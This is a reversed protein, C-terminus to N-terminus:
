AKASINALRQLMAAAQARTAAGKPDIIIRGDANKGVGSIVGLNSLIQIADMAYDSIDAEDAFIIWRTTVPQNIKLYKMYRTFIVAMDQRKIPDNPAFRGSGVGAVIGNHYAWIVADSYMQGVPADTFPNDLGSIDPEGEILYLITVMMGRTLTADPSFLMPDASTGSMLGNHYVYIVADIFWDAGKVDEFPNVPLTPTIPAPADEITFEARAFAGDTFRAELTHKGVPLTDLYGSFVTIETSGNRASYHSDRKILSGDIMADRFFGFAKQVVFILPEGSGKIYVSKGGHFGGRPSASATYDDDASGGNQNVSDPAGVSLDFGGSTVGDITLTLPHSGEPTVATTYITVITNDNTTTDAGITIGAITNINNLSIASGNAINETTVIFTVSGAAGAKLSGTQAGVSITKVPADVHTFTATITIIGNPAADSAAITYISTSSGPTTVPAPPNTVGSYILINSQTAIDDLTYNITILDGAKGYANSITVADIGASGSQFVDVRYVTVSAAVSGAADSATVTCTTLAGPTPTKTAGTGMAGGSWTYTLTGAAATNGGTALATADGTAPNITIAVTGSLSVAKYVVVTSPGTTINFAGFSAVSVTVDGQAAVASLGITWADGSGTLAGKTVMGTGNTITIDSATLGTVAQNFTLTIGTSDAAGSAGGTQEAIFTLVTREQKVTLFFMVTDSASGKSITAILAVAADGHGSLPRTIEGSNSVVTTDSSLWSITAGNVGSLPLTALNETVNDEATNSGQIVSWTLNTKTEAVDDIDMAYAPMALAAPLILIFVASLLISLVRTEFSKDTKIM